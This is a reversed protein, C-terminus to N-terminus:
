VTQWFFNVRLDRDQAIEPGSSLYADTLVEGLAETDTSDILGDIVLGVMPAPALGCYLAIVERWRSDDHERVLRAADIDLKNGEHVARAALYEQFTLHAFAFVQPRRELLLGTRYRVHELLARARGADGLVEAFVEQIREAPYEARDDAQMNVAVERCVRLKEYLTFASRIGRRQDWNHLLGEVCLQYLLARDKPLEGGEFYNVLCVASLMLPNRALDHIYPQGEFGAVIRDGDAAGERRAEEEPENQALRVATCWHHAYDRIQPADFDLLDCEEFELPRLRGPPYGVPRSSILYHCCPYREILGELWPLVHSELLEPDTEDLGDLMFIV